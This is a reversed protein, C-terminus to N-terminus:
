LSLFILIFKTNKQIKNKLDENQFVPCIEDTTADTMQVWCWSLFLLGERTEVQTCRSLERLAVPIHDWSLSGLGFLRSVSSDEQDDLEFRKLASKERIMTTQSLISRFATAQKIDTNFASSVCDRSCGQASRVSLSLRLHNYGWSLSAKITESTQLWPFHHIPGVVFASRCPVVTIQFEHKPLISNSM